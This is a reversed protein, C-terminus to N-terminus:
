VKVGETIYLKPKDILRLVDFGADNLLQRMEKEDPLFDDKVAHCNSHHHRIEHSSLAHAIIIHGKPRLIRNIEKLARLKDEIHPFVGFCVVYDFYADEFPTHAIDCVHFRVRGNDSFKERARKIMEESYDIAEISGEDGIVDLLLPIIGGTGTGVDLVRSGKPIHFEAIVRKIHEMNEATYFRSDWTPAMSDFFARKDM